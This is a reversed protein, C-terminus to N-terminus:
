QLRSFIGLLWLAIAVGAIIRAATIKAQNEHGVDNERILKSAKSAYYLALGELVGFFCFIGVISYILASKSKSEIEGLVKSQQETLGFVSSQFSVGSPLSQQVAQENTESELHERNNGLEEQPSTLRTSSAAADGVPFVVSLSLWQNLSPKYVLTDKTILGDLYLDRIISTDFPGNERGGATIVKYEEPADLPIRRMEEVRRAVTVADDRYVGAPSNLIVQLSEDSMDSMRRKLEKLEDM